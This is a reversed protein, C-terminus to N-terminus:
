RGQFRPKRKSLFASVTERYDQTLECRGQGDMEAAAMDSWGGYQARNILAKIEAYAATPGSGYKEVYEMVRAELRSAPVAETFLGWDAGERGTFARGSMFLDAARVAGVARTALMTTGSDPIFGINVFAFVCKATESVVQFDCSLALALGAGAAAGEVWAVVPKKVGRLRLNTEAGLRCVKRTGRVGADIRAKMVNLDGGASFSGGSGRIVVVRVEEDDDCLDFAQQLERHTDPSIPNRKEPHNLLIYAAPGEKQYIIHQFEM